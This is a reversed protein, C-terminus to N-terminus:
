RTFGVFDLRAGLLRHDATRIRQLNACDIEVTHRTASSVARGYSFAGPGRVQCVPPAADLRVCIRTRYAPDALLPVLAHVVLTTKPAQPQLVFYARDAIWGDEYVGSFELTPDALDAPFRAVSAPPRMQAYRRDDILSIDRAWATTLRPDLIVDRGYLQSIASRPPQPLPAADRGLDLGVFRMDDISRPVLVDSFIRASGRGVVRFPERREGVAIASPLQDNDVGNFSASISLVLRVRDSPAIIRFLLYRGLASMVENGYFPATEVADIAVKRGFLM